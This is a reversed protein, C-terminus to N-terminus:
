NPNGFVGSPVGNDDYVIIRGNQGDFKLKNNGVNVVGLLNQSNGGSSLTSLDAPAIETNPIDFSGNGDM